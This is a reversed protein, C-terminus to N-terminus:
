GEEKVNLIPTGQNYERLWSEFYTDIVFPDHHIILDDGYSRIDVEVGYRTETAHLESITNRRHSILKMKKTKGKVYLQIKLTRKIFNLKSSLWFEM